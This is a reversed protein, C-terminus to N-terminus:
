RHLSVTHNCQTAPKLICQIRETYFVCFDQTNKRLCVRWCRSYKHVKFSNSHNTTKVKGDMWDANWAKRPYGNQHQPLPASITDCWQPNIAWQHWNHLHSINEKAEHETQLLLHLQISYVAFTLSFVKKGWRGHSMYLESTVYVVYYLFTLSLFISTM